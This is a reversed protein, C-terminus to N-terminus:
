NLAKSVIEYVDKSLDQKAILSLAQKMKSQRPEAFKKWATLPVILRAAIQPNIKDLKLVEEALFLYGEGKVEHFVEMNLRAFVGLVSRVRNPNQYTFDVHETLAVVSKLGENTPVSAQISFWKDIVLKDHRWEKYFKAIAENREVSNFCNLGEFAALKDTMNHAFNFQEVLMPTYKEQQSLLLLCTNKLMRQSINEKDYVYEPSDKLSEYQALLAVDFNESIAQKLFKHSALLADVDIEDFQEFLYTIDPVELALSKLGKDLSADKLVQGYAEFYDRPLILSENQQFRVANDKLAKLALTQISEWRVFTDSDHSALVKLAQSSLEHELVVPASFQRLLSLYPDVSVEEFTFTQCIKRLILLYGKETKVINEELGKPRLSLEKGSEDLAGFLVPILLPHHTQAGNLFQELTLTLRGSERDYNKQVKLRPTGAQVYWYYMQDLNTQNADAMAQRFDNVTVAQGDFRDFYLKMGAQFGDEGLLTHYLRVVEAGKEYVTMTYFNNMEIYSQPQIPHSMPGDDEPFQNNRLRKVDEIRKVAPSLMDATFEQDRFVTLGEKLTLQFWDRCTVRNGTWNHFYEHAIVAEIGEYDKDTATDSRALVYKSNFVNLGKNEMAGMNFDDVAVIMYIDLDYVLGFRDEDWKMSKKLSFMAHECKDINQPEVYIRLDITRGDKSQFQNRYSELNGAVLAFLYCPKKFPDQWVAYHYGDALDGEEILNGNSLLVRNETKKAIIKTTYFTLVDPRDLFYTIGRFGEAECQTCYNGSTRFLGELFTNQQPNIRTVVSLSFKSQETLIILTQDSVQYEESQLLRGDLAVSILELREGNLELASGSFSSVQMENKVLTNEPELEFTLFVSDIQCAPPQYNELFYETPTNQTM